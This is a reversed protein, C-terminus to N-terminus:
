GSVARQLQPSHLASLLTGVPRRIRLSVEALKSWCDVGDGRAIRAARHVDEREYACIPVAGWTRQRSWSLCSPHARGGAHQTQIRQPPLQSM